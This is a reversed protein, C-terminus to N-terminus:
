MNNYQKLVTDLTSAATELAAEMEIFDKKSVKSTSYKDILNELENVFSSLNTLAAESEVEEESRENCVARKTTRPSTITRPLM